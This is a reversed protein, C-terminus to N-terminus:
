TSHFYHQARIFDPLKKLLTFWSHPSTWFMKFYNFLVAPREYYNRILDNYLKELRSLSSIDNPRFIFNMCNMKSWDEILDGYKDIVRYIPAGPFPTFKAVNIDDLPLDLIFTKTRQVSEETEGPLGLMFLGKVRLDFKKINEICQRIGELDAHSKNLRLVEPDGSEIGLSIMWCGARKLTALLEDDLLDFRVACNFTIDLPKKELLAAFKMIRSRDYTFLDDYINVHRIGYDRKLFLLHEYIYKASNFRFRRRFVSRDCFLCQYPCGRSTIMTTNPATPYNFIPLHYHGPFHPLGQYDPFPLSDLDLLDEGYGNFKVTPGHRYVLGSITDPAHGKILNHFAEEGEGVIVYDIAPFQELCKEKQSSVHVGGFVITTDPCREKIQSALGYGELFSSTTCSFGVVRPKNAIIEQLIDPVKQPAACYDRIAVSWGNRKLYSSIGMLGIPPMRNASLVTKELGPMWNSGAPHVLMVEVM